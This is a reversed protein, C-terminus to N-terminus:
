QCTKLRRERNDKLGRPHLDGAAEISRSFCSAIRTRSSGGRVRSCPPLVGSARLPTGSPSATTVTGTRLCPSVWTGRSVRRRVRVECASTCVVALVESKAGGSPIDVLSGAQTSSWGIRRHDAITLFNPERASYRASSRGRRFRHLARRLRPGPQVRPSGRDVSYAFAASWLYGSARTATRLSRPRGAGGHHQGLRRWEDLQPKRQPYPHEASRAPAAFRWSCCRM